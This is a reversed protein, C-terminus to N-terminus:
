GAFRVAERGIRFIKRIARQAARLGVIVIKDIEIPRAPFRPRPLFVGGKERAPKVFVPRNGLDAASNASM